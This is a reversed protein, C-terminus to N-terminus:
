SELVGHLLIRVYEDVFAESDDAVLGAVTAAALGSWTAVVPDFRRYEPRDTTAAIHSAVDAVHGHVMVAVEAAVDPFRNLEALLTLALSREDRVVGAWAVLFSHLALQQDAVPEGAGHATRARLLELMPEVISLRFLEQKSGFHKFLLPESVGADRAILSVTTAHYGDDAFRRRAVALLHARRAPGAMRPTLRATRVAM